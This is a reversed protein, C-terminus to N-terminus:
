RPAKSPAKPKPEPKAPAADKLAAAILPDDANLLMPFPERGKALTWAGMDRASGSNCKPDTAKTCFPDFDIPEQRFTKRLGAETLRWYGRWDVANLAYEGGTFGKAGPSIGVLVANEPSPNSRELDICLGPNAASCRRDSQIVWVNKSTAPVRQWSEKVAAAAAFNDALSAEAAVILLRVSAPIKGLDQPDWHKAASPGQDGRPDLLVLVKPAPLPKDDAKATGPVAMRLATLAGVGHGVYAIPADAKAKLRVLADSIARRADKAYRELDPVHVGDTSGYLPLIVAYGKRALHKALPAYL